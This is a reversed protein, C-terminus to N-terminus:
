EEEHKRWSRGRFGLLTLRQNAANKRKAAEILEPPRNALMAARIDEIARLLFQCFASGRYANNLERFRADAQRMEEVAARLDKDSM